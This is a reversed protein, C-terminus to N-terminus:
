SIYNLGRTSQQSLSDPSIGEVVALLDDFAFIAAHGSSSKGLRVNIESYPGSEFDFVILDEGIIFDRIIDHGYGPTLIFTDKGAGGWLKNFGQGGKLTDDGSLGYIEDRAEGGDLFDNGQSGHHTDNDIMWSMMDEEDENPSLHIGKISSKEQQNSLSTNVFTM